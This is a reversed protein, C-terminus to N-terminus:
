SLRRISDVHDTRRLSIGKGDCEGRWDGRAKDLAAQYFGPISIGLVTGAQVFQNNDFLVDLVNGDIMASVPYITAM